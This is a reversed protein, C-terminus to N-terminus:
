KKSGINVKAVLYAILLFSNLFNMGLATKDCLGLIHLFRMSPFKCKNFDRKESCSDDWCGWGQACIVCEKSGTSPSGPSWLLSGNLNDSSNHSYFGDGNSAFYEYMGTDPNKKYPIWVEYYGDITNINAFSSDFEAITEYVDLM